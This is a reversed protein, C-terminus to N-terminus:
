VYKWKPERLMISWKVFPSIHFYFSIKVLSFEFHKTIFDSDRDLLREWKTKKPLIMSVALTTFLTQAM